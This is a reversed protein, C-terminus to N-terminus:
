LEVFLRVGASGCLVRVEELAEEDGEWELRLEELEPVDRLAKAVIGKLDLKWAAKKPDKFIELRRLTRPLAIESDPPPLFLAHTALHELAPLLDWHQSDANATIYGARNSTEHSKLDLSRLSPQEKFRLRELAMALPFFDSTTVKLSYVNPFLELLTRLFITTGFNTPRSPAEEFTLSTPNLTPPPPAPQSRICQYSFTIHKIDGITVDVLKPTRTKKSDILAKIIGAYKWLDYGDRPGLSHFGVLTAPLSHIFTPTVTFPTDLTHLFPLMQLIPLLTPDPDGEIDGFIRLVELRGVSLLAEVSDGIDINVDFTLSLSRLTDSVGQLFQTLNQIGAPSM